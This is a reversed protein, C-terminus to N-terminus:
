DIKELPVGTKKCLTGTIKSKNDGRQSYNTDFMVFGRQSLYEDIFDLFEGRKGYRKGWPSKLRVREGGFKLTILNRVGHEVGNLKGINRLEELGCNLHEALNDKGELVMYRPTTM